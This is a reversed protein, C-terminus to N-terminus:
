VCTEMVWRWDAYSLANGRAYSLLTADECSVSPHDHSAFTIPVLDPLATLLEPARYRQYGDADEDDRVKGDNEEPVM